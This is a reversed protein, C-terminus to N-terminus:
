IYWGRSPNFPERSIEIGSYRDDNEWYEASEYIRIVSNNMKSELTNRVQLAANTISYTESLLGISLNGDNMYIGDDKAKLSVLKNDGRYYESARVVGGYVELEPTNFLLKNRDLNNMFAVGNQKLIDVSELELGDFTKYVRGDIKVDGNVYLNREPYRTNIGVYGLYGKDTNKAHDMYINPIFSDVGDSLRPTFGAYIGVGHDGRKSNTCISFMNNMGNLGRAHGMYVEYPSINDVVDKICIESNINPRRRIVNLMSDYVDNKVGVGLRGPVSLNEGDVNLKDIVSYTLIKDTDTGIHYSTILNIAIDEQLKKDKLNLTKIYNLINSIGNEKMYSSITLAISDVDFVNSDPIVNMIDIESLVYSESIKDKVYKDVIDEIESYGNTRVYNNLIVNIDEVERLYINSRINSIRFNSDIDNIVHDFIEDKVGIYLETEVIENININSELFKIIKDTTYVINLVHQNDVTIRYGDLIDNIVFTKYNDIIMMSNNVMEVVNCLGDSMLVNVDIDELIDGLNYKSSVLRFDILGIDVPRVFLNDLNCIGHNFIQNSVDDVIGDITYEYPFLEYVINSLNNYEDDSYLLNSVSYGISPDINSIENDIYEINCKLDIM